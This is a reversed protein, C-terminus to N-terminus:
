GHRVRRYPALLEVVRPLLKVPGEYTASAGGAQQVTGGPNTRRQVEYLVQQECAQALDPYDAVLADTTAALGGTWTVRCVGPGPVPTYTDFQICGLRANVAYGASAVITGDGFARASDVRVVPPTGTDIPFAPLWVIRQAVDLDFDETRAVKLLRRGLYADIAASASAILQGILGDAAAWSKGGFGEAYLKVRQLTTLQLVAM